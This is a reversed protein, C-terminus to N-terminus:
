LPQKFLYYKNSITTESSYDTEPMPKNRDSARNPTQNPITRATTNSCDLTRFAKLIEPITELLCVPTNDHSQGLGNKMATVQDFERM